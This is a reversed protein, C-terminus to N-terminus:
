TLLNTYFSIGCLVSFASIKNETCETNETTLTKRQAETTSLQNQLKKRSM